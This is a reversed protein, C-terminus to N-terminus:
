PTDLGMEDPSKQESTGDAPEPSLMPPQVRLLAECAGKIWLWDGQEKVLAPSSLTAAVVAAALWCIAGGMLGYMFIFVGSGMAPTARYSLYAGGASAVGGGSFLLWAATMKIM